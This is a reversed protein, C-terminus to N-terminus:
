IQEVKNFIGFLPDVEDTLRYSDDVTPDSDEDTFTAIETTGRYLKMFLMTDFGDEEANYEMNDQLHNLTWGLKSTKEVITPINENSLKIAYVDFYTRM